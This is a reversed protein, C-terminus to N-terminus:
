ALTLIFTQEKKLSEFRSGNRRGAPGVTRGRRLEDVLAVLAVAGGLVVPQEPLVDVVSPPLLRHRRLVFAELSALAARRHYDRRVARVSADSVRDGARRLARVVFTPLNGRPAPLEPIRRKRARVRESSATAGGRRGVAANRSWSWVLERVVM